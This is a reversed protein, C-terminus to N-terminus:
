RVAREFKESINVFGRRFDQVAPLFFTRVTMFVALGLVAWELLSLLGRVIGEVPVVQRPATREAWV